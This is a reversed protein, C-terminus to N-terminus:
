RWDRRKGQCLNAEVLSRRGEEEGDSDLGNLRRTKRAWAENIEKGDREECETVSKYENYAKIVKDAAKKAQDLLFDSPQQEERLDLASCLSM